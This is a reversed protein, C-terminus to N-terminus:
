NAKATAAAFEEASLFGDKDKDFEAFKSGIASVKGAEAPSVKGDGNADARKFGAELKADAKTGSGLISPATSEKDKAASKQPAMPQAEAQPPTAPQPSASQPATSSQAQVGAAAAALLAVLSVHMFRTRNTM